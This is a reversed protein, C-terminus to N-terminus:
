HSFHHVGLWARAGEGRSHHDAARPGRSDLADDIEDGIFLEIPKSARRAVLDQLALACAIRVKRKEGGSIGKFTEGGTVNTVEISFKERLDGKATKVLTTWTATLNGDSLTGLYKATQENLFPTVEDLLYARVGTPSFV